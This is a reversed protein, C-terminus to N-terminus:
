ENFNLKVMICKKGLDKIKKELINLHAYLQIKEDYTLYNFQQQNISIQYFIKLDHVKIQCNTTNKIDDFFIEKFDNFYSIM